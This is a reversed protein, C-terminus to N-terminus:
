ASLSIFGLLTFLLTPFLFVIAARPHGDYFLQTAHVGFFLSGIFFLM